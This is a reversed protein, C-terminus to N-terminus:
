TVTITAKMGSEYHTPEHCGILVTEPGTFTMTLDASMGPKVTAADTETGGMGSMSGGNAMTKAHETQVTESGVIAEHEVSGQNTFRFVVKTKSPVTITPPSFSNDRMTIEVVTPTAKAGTGGGCGSVLLALPIAAGFIRKM